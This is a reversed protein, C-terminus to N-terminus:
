KFEGNTKKFKNINNNCGNAVKSNKFKNIRLNIDMIININPM